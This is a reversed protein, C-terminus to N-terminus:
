EPSAGSITIRVDSQAEHDIWVVCKRDGNDDRVIGSRVESDGTLRSGDVEVVPKQSSNWNKIVFAPYAM